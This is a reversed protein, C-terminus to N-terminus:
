PDELKTTAHKQQTCRAVFIPGERKRGHAGLLSQQFVSVLISPLFVSWLSNFGQENTVRQFCNIIGTYRPVEGSAIKPNADQTQILLKVREAV